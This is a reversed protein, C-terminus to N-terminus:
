PYKCSVVRKVEGFSIAGAMETVVAALSPTVVAQRNESNDQMGLKQKEIHLM